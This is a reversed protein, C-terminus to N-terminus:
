SLKKLVLGLGDGVPLLCFEVRQDDRIKGTLERLVSAAPREAAPDAVAGGLLLNDLAMLGGPRLLRLSLEYYEPYSIKDADIFVFDFSNEKGEALLASLVEQAPAIRREIRDLVGAEQWHREATAMAEADIDCAILKGSEGLALAMWLGSYGTFVGIEIARRAQTLAILFHFFQGMEPSIQMYGHPHSRAELRIKELVPHERVTLAVLYDHVLNSLGISKISM